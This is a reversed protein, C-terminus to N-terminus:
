TPDTGLRGGYLRSLIHISAQLCGPCAAVRERGARARPGNWIDTLPQERVSGIPSHDVGCIVIRGDPLMYLIDELCRCRFRLSGHLIERRFVDGTIFRGVAHDLRPLQLKTGLDRDGLAELARRPEQLLVFHQPQETPSSSGDLFPAVNIGPILDADFQAAYRKMADLEGISRDTLSFNVGMQFGLERRLPALAELTRTAKAWCGPVGRQQDHTQELGDVSVRLQLGPWGVRRVAEVIADTATGNTTLQMIYPDVVRRTEAMIEVMDPRAFPEGGLLKVIDLSRLQPLLRLWEHTSLEDEAPAQWANCSACRMNCRFTTLLYGVHPPPVWGPRLRAMTASTAMNRWARARQRLKRLHSARGIV